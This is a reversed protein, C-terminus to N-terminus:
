FRYGLAIKFDIALGPYAKADFNLSEYYEVLDKEFKNPLRIGGIIGLRLFLSDNVSDPLFFIDMGFGLRFSLASYDVANEVELADEDFMATIIRYNIGMLPYLNVKKGIGFPAKGMLSIDFGIPSFIYEDLNVDTNDEYRDEFTCNGGFFGFSFEAFTIDFFVFGGGGKTKSSLSKNIDDSIGKAVGPFDNIIYGGVGTSIKLEPVAYVVNAVIVMLLFIYCVKKGM